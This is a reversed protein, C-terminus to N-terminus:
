ISTNNYLYTKIITGTFTGTPNGPTNWTYNTDLDEVLIIDDQKILRELERLRWEFSSNLNFRKSASM